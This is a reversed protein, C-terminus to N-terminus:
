KVLQKRWKTSISIQGVMNKLRGKCAIAYEAGNNLPRRLMYTLGIPPHNAIFVEGHPAAFPYLSSFHISGDKQYIYFLPSRRKLAKM